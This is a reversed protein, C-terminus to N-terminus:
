SDCFREKLRQERESVVEDLKSKVNGFKREVRSRLDRDFYAFCACYVFLFQVFTQIMYMRQRRISRVTKVILDKEHTPSTTTSPPSPLVSSSSSAQQLKELVSVITLLAGTRGCGASCHVVIPKSEGGNVITFKERLYELVRFFKLFSELSTPTGNDTWKSFQLHTLCHKHWTPETGHRHQVCLTRLIIGDDLVHESVRSVNLYEPSSLLDDSLKGSPSNLYASFQSARPNQDDSLMVVLACNQECVMTWFDDITSLLPAQTAIFTSDKSTNIFSANIYDFGEGGCCLKVRNFNYPLVDPYRNKFANEIGKSVSLDGVGEIMGDGALVQLHRLRQEEQIEHFKKLLLAKVDDAQLVEELFPPLTESNNNLASRFSELLPELVTEMTRLLETDDMDLEKSVITAAAVSASPASIPFAVPFSTPASSSLPICCSNLKLMGQTQYHNTPSKTPASSFREHQRLSSSSCQSPFTDAFAEYGGQLWHLDSIWSVQILKQIVYYIAETSKPLQQQQQTNLTLERTKDDYIIVKLVADQYDNIWEKEFEPLSNLLKDATWSARKLLTSPFVWNHASRIHGQLFKTPTRLDILLYKTNSTTTNSDDILLTNLQSPTLPSPSKTSTVNNNIPSPPPTSQTNSSTVHKSETM